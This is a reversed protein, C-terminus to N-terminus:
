RVRDGCVGCKTMYGLVIRKERPHDCPPKPPERRIGLARELVAVVLANRTLGAARAREDLMEKMGEPAQVEFRDAKRAV